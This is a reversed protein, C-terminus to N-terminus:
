GADKEWRIEMEERQGLAKRLLVVLGNDAGNEELFDLTGQNFYYDQDELSEEELQDVLFQLQRESITGLDAGTENDFIRVM